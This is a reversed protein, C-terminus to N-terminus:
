VVSKRDEAKTAKKPVKKIVKKKLFKSSAIQNKGDGDIVGYDGDDRIEIITVSIKKDKKKWIVTDGVKYVSVKIDSM